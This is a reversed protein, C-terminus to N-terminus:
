QRVFLLIMPESDQVTGGGVFGRNGDQSVGGVLVTGQVTLEVSGDTSVVYTAAVAAETSITGSENITWEITAAGAGNATMTGTVSRVSPTTFDHAFGVVRYIGTLTADSATTAEKVLVYLRPSEGPTTVGSVVVFEGDPSLGGSLRAVAPGITTTGNAAVSYPGSDGTDSDVDGDFNRNGGTAFTFTGAGDSTGSAVITLALGSGGMAGFHFNGVLSANTATATDPWARVLVDFLPTDGPNVSGLLAVDESPDVWGVARLTVGDFLTLSGDMGLTTSYTDMVGTTVVTDDNRTSTTELISGDWDARAALTHFQVSGDVFGGLEAFKFNGADDNSTDGGSGGCGTASILAAVLLSTTALLRLCHSM